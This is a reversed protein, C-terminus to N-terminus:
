IFPSYQNNKLQLYFIYRTQGSFVLKPMKFWTIVKPMNKEAFFFMEANQGFTMKSLMAKRM